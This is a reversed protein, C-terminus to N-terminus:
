IRPSEPNETLAAKIARQLRSEGPAVAEATAAKASPQRATAGLAAAATKAADAEANAKDAAAKAADIQPQLAATTAEVAAKAAAGAAEAVLAEIEDKTMEHEEAEAAKETPDTEPTADPAVVEAEAVPQAANKEDVTSADVTEAAAPPTLDAKAEEAPVLEAYSAEAEDLAARAATISGRIKDMREKDAASHRAGAKEADGSRFAEYEQEFTELAMAIAVSRAGDDNIMWCQQLDNFVACLASCLANYREATGAEGDVTVDASVPWQYSEGQTFYAKLTETLKGIFSTKPAGKVALVKANGNRPAWEVGDKQAFVLSLETIAADSIQTKM